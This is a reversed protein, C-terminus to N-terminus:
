REGEAADHVADHNSVRFPQGALALIVTRQKWRLAEHESIADRYHEDPRFSCNGQMCGQDASAALPWGCAMCRGAAALGIMELLIMGPQGREALIRVDVLPLSAATPDISSVIPIHGTRCWECVAVSAEAKAGPAATPPESAPSPIPRGTRCEGRPLRTEAERKEDM